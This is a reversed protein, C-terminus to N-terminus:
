VATLYAAPSSSIAAEKGSTNKKKKPVQTQFPWLWKMVLLLFLVSMAGLRGPTALYDKTLVSSYLLAVHM